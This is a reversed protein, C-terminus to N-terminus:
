LELTAEKAKRHHLVRKPPVITLLKLQNGKEYSENNLGQTCM